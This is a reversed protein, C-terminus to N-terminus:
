LSVETLQMCFPEVYGQDEMCVRSDISLSWVRQIYELSKSSERYISGFGHSVVFEITMQLRFRWVVFIALPIINSFAEPVVGCGRREVRDGFVIFPLSSSVQRYRAVIRVNKLISM